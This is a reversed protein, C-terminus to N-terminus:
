VPPSPVLVTQISSSQIKKFSVLLPRTTAFNTYPLSFTAPGALALTQDSNFPVAVANSQNASLIIGAVIGPSFNDSPQDIIGQRISTIFLAQNSAVLITNPSNSSTILVEGFASSLCWLSSLCIFLLKM